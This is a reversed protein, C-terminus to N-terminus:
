PEPDHWDPKAGTLGTWFIAAGTAGVVLCLGDVWWAAYRGTFEIWAAPAALLAGLLLAAGRQRTLRLLVGRARRLAM